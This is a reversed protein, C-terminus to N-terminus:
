VQYSAVTVASTLLSPPQSWSLPLVSPSVHISEPDTTFSSGCSQSSAPHPLPLPSTPHPCTSLMTTGPLGCHGDQPLCQPPTSSSLKPCTVSSISILCWTPLDLPDNLASDATRPSFLSTQSSDACFSGHSQILDDPDSVSGCAGHLGPPCLLARFSMSPCPFSWTAWLFSHGARGELTPPTYSSLGLPDPTSLQPFPPPHVKRRSLSSLTSSPWSTPFSAPPDRAM